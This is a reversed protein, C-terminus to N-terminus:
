FLNANYRINYETYPKAFPNLIKAITKPWRKTVSLSQQSNNAKTFIYYHVNYDNYPVKIQGYDSNILIIPLNNEHAKEISTIKYTKTFDKSYTEYSLLLIGLMFSIFILTIFFIDIFSSDVNQLNNNYQERNFLCYLVIIIYLISVLVTM